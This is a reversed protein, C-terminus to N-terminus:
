CSSANVWTVLYSLFVQDHTTSHLALLGYQIIIQIPLQSTLPPPKEIIGDDMIDARPSQSREPIPVLPDGAMETRSLADLVTSPPRVGPHSFISRVGSSPRYALTHRQQQSIRTFPHRSTGHPSNITTEFRQSTPSAATDFHSEVPDGATVIVPLPLSSGEESAGRAVEDEAYRTDQDLYPEENENMAAAVWLDAINTVTNVNALLLKQTLNLGSYELTSREEYITRRKRLRSEMNDRSMSDALRASYNSNYGYASGSSGSTQPILHQDRPSALLLPVSTASADATSAPTLKTSFINSAWMKLSAAFGLSANSELHEVADAGEDPIALKQGSTEEPPLRISGERPGGDRGLFLSLLSGVFHAFFDLPLPFCLEGIM